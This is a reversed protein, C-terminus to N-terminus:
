PILFTLTESFKTFVSFLHYRKENVSHTVTCFKVSRPGVSVTARLIETFITNKLVECFENSFVQALAEKIFLSESM